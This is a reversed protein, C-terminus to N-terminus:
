PLFDMPKLRIAAFIRRLIDSQDPVSWPKTRVSFPFLGFLRPKMVFIFFDLYLRNVTGQNKSFNVESLM